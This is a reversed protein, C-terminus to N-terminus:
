IESKDKIEISLKDDKYYFFIYNNSNKIRENNHSTSKLTYSSITDDYTVEVSVEVEGPLSCKEEKCLTSAVNLVKVKTDYKEFNLVDGRKINFEDTNINQKTIIIYGILATISLLVIALIIYGIKKM